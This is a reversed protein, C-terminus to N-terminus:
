VKYDSLATPMTTWNNFTHDKKITSDSVLFYDYVPKNTTGVPDDWTVDVHYWDGDIQVMNWMHGTGNGYGSVCICPIGIAQSLYMFAKSYGECLAEGYVIPGDAESKYAPGSLIYETNNVIWDHIVLLREYDSSYSLAEALIENCVEDFTQQIQEAESETRGYMMNIAKVRGQLTYSYGYGNDLWFFQPNDYDFAWYLTGIDSVTLNCSSVDATDEHNAAAEFIIGYAKKQASSLMSYGYKSTYDDLISIESLDVSAQEISYKKSIYRKKWGSKVALIRLTSDESITIGKSTYLTSSTTPKSGDLTYYFKVSSAKSSLTVTQTGSYEGANPTITVKPTLYYTYTVVSSKVGSKVSYVKLLTNKKLTLANTYLKYAGGNSSYYISASTDKCSLTVKIGTSVCYTGSQKSATPSAVTTVAYTTAAQSGLYTQVPPSFTGVAIVVAALLGWLKKKM